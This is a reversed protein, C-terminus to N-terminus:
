DTKLGHTRQETLVAVALCAPCAADAWSIVAERGGDERGVDDGNGRRRLLLFWAAAGGLALVAMLGIAVAGASAVQGAAGIAPAGVILGLAFHGGVFASNGVVLGRGFVALPLNALACAAISGIRVGPTARTVAVARWGGRRLRQALAELREPGVGIRALLRLVPGRVSGRVLLFQIAGGVYGAALIAAIVLPATQPQTSAAVGAGIVVLDGPVPVPIGTEKVLLLGCVGLLPVLEM